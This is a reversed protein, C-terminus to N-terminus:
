QLRYACTLGALGGGVVVIKPASAARATPSLRGFAGASVALVGADRLFRRRDTRRAGDRERAVQQLRSALPTRAMDDRGETPPRATGHSALPRPQRVLMEAHAPEDHDRDGRERGRSRGAVSRRGGRLVLPPEVEDGERAVRLRAPVVRADVP